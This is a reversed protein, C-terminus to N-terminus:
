LDIFIWAFEENACKDQSDLSVKSERVCPKELEATNVNSSSFEKRHPQGTWQLINLPMEPEEGISALLVRM